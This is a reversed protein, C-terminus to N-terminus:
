PELKTLITSDVRFGDFVLTLGLDEITFKSWDPESVSGLVPINYTPVNITKYDGRVILVSGTKTSYKAAVVHNEPCASKRIEEIEERQLVVYGNKEMAEKAFNYFHEAKM